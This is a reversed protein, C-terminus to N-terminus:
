GRRHFSCAVVDFCTSATNYGSWAYFSGVCLQMLLAAPLLMWRQFKFQYIQHGYWLINWKSVIVSPPFGVWRDAEIEEMSPQGDPITYHEIIKEKLKSTMHEFCGVTESAFSPAAATDTMSAGDEVAVNLATASASGPLM